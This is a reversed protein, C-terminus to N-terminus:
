ALKINLDFNGLKQLERYEEETLLKIGMEAAM